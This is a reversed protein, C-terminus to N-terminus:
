LVELTHRPPIRPVPQSGRPSLNKRPHLRESQVFVQFGIHRQWARGIRAVESNGHVQSLVSPQSSRPWFFLSCYYIRFVEFICVKLQTLVELDFSIFFFFLATGQFNLSSMKSVLFRTANTNTSAYSHTPVTGCKKGKTSFKHLSRSTSTVCLRFVLSNGPFEFLENQVCSVKNCQHKVPKLYRVVSKGMQVLNTDTRQFNLSSKKSM